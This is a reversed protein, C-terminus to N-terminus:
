FKARLSGVLRRSYADGRDHANTDYLRLDAALQPVIDHTVGVNYATYDPSGSRERRGLRAGIRTGKRVEYALGGEVFLASRTSGTDDPSYIVTMTARAAGFKRGAEFRTELARRDAQAAVGHISKLGVRGSLDFGKAKTAYGASFLSEIGSDGNSDINKGSAELSFGGFALNPRVVLQPGDTQALGKSIGTSALEIQITPRPPPLDFM